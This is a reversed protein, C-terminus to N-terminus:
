QSGDGHVPMPDGSLAQRIFNAIVSGYGDENVRPGYSNFYRVISVPLGKEYFAYAIHEDVAKSVSYSWRNISTAGLIRDADEALPGGNSKGYVESTSAIVIRKWYKFALLLVNETVRVNTMITRLAD